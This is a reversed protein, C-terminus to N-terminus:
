ATSPLTTMGPAMKRPSGDIIAGNKLSDDRRQRIQAVDGEGLVRPGAKTVLTLADRSLTGIRGEAERGTVDVVSIKDGPKVLVALQDFSSAVGQAEVRTGGACVLLFLGGTTLATM